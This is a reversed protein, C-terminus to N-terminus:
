CYPTPNTLGWAGRGEKKNKEGNAIDNTLGDFSLHQGPALEPLM